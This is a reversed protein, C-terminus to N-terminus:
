SCSPSLPVVTIPVSLWACSACASALRRIASVPITSRRPQLRRHVARVRQEAERDADDRDHDREAQRDLEELRDSDQEDGGSCEDKHNEDSAPPLM